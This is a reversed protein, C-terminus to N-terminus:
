KERDILYEHDQHEFPRKLHRFALALAAFPFLWRDWVLYAKSTYSHLSITAKATYRNIGWFYICVIM